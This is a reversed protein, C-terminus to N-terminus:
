RSVTVTTVTSRGAKTTKTPPVATFLEYTGALKLEKVIQYSGNKAIVGSGIKVPGDPTKRKLLITTGPLAPTVTGSVVVNDGRQLTADKVQMTVTVAKKAAEFNYTTTTGDYGFTLGDVFTNVGTSAAICGARALLLTGTGDGHSAIFEAVTATEQPAQGGDSVNTWDYDQALLDVSQWGSSVPFTFQGQWTDPQSAIVVVAVTAGSPDYVDVGFDTVSGVWAVGTAIGIVDQEEAQHFRLSGTGLPPAAAAPGTVTGVTGGGDPTGDCHADYVEFGQPIGTVVTAAAAPPAPLQTLLFAGTLVAAKVHRRPM